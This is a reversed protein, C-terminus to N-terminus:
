SAPGDISGALFEDLAAVPVIYRQGTQIARLKRGRILARVRSEPMGTREAVEAVTWAARPLTNPATM